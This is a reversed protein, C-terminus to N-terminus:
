FYVSKSLGFITWVHIFFLYHLIYMSDGIFVFYMEIDGIELRRVGFFRNFHIWKMSLLSISTMVRPQFFFCKKWFIDYPAYFNHLWISLHVNKRNRIKLHVSFVKWLGSLADLCPCSSARDWHVVVNIIWNRCMQLHQSKFQLGM